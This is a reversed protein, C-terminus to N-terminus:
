EIVATDCTEALSTRYIWHSSRRSARGFIASTRPLLYPAAAVAENCDLDIDTLGGSAPGLIVGVNQPEGNFHEPATAETIRLTQWAKLTPNKAGHAVPVPARGHRIHDLATDLPTMDRERDAGGM